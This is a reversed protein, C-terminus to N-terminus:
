ILTIYTKPKDKPNGSSGWYRKYHIWKWRYHILKPRKSNQTTLSFIEKDKIDKWVGLENRLNETSIGGVWWCACLTERLLGTRPSPLSPQGQVRLSGEVWRQRGLALILSTCWRRRTTGISKLTAKLHGWTILKSPCKMSQLSCYTNVITANRNSHFHWPLPSHLFSSNQKPWNKILMICVPTMRLSPVEVSYIGGDSQSIIM